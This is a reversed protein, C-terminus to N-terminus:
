LQACRSLDLIKMGSGELEAHYTNGLFSVGASLPEPSSNVVALASAGPYYACEVRPDDTHPLRDERGEMILRDLLVTNDPSYAFGALYIGCGKGFPHATILPREGDDWLVRVSPSIVRAPVTRGLGNRDPCIGDRPSRAMVYSGHCSYSADDRDVGLVNAMRFSRYGDPACSPEAIGIFTGGRSVFANVNEMVRPDRWADGGSWATGEWGCNILVDIDGPVGDGIDEFSLFRVDHPLGSLSEIVHILPHMYTEHFHGSLTWSRLSGWATLVGIRIGSSLPAGTDHLASVTRFEKLIRDMAETFDPYEPVLHLYGGLGTRDIKQRLMARRVRVWYELADRGPKGGPSFTPAGGLGVPFLYPHFRIEHTKATVGGCLRVEFGSFVCKIIGDFGMEEFHGSWPELGVWSDDYFVYAEKGYGHTLDTLERGLKRVFRGVFEMWDRKHPTPPIHTANYKGKRVFDEATLAYGYEKEFDSLAAPSVTFDYSAWDTFLNRDMEDSGWIWTFNYFLSTFRVVNTDPHAELWKKMWGVLYGRAEPLYPDLVMLHEKDWHNTVHNYMSIEEWIRWALFSVTYERAPVSPFTVKGGAYSVTDRDLRVGSTRDWVELYKMAEATENVSFQEDFFGAMLDITTEESGATVSPTSLFCQQRCEPHALLFPNHERIPCLTSYIRYGSFVIEPSLKTGDSDRIVDADWRRALELTLDECGSEGPLTFHGRVEKM